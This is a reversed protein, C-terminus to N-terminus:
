LKLLAPSMVARLIVGAESDADAADSFWWVGSKHMHWDAQQASLLLAAVRGLTPQHGVVVVTGDREPWGAARLVATAAAGPALADVTRYDRQLAQVTQQTRRAPSALLLTNKPLRPLLWQAILAAQRLGKSSLPRELDPTGDEAHAHRWLILEM